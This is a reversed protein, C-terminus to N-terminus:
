IKETMEIKGFEVTKEKMSIKVVEYGYDSLEKKYRLFSHDLPIGAIEQIQEYTLKFSDEGNESIWIWLKDYKSM